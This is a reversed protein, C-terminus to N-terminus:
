ARARRGAYTRGDPENACLERLNLTYQYNTFFNQVQSRTKDPFNANIADYDRGYKKVL